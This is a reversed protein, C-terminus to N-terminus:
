PFPIMVLSDVKFNQSIMEYSRISDNIEGEQSQLATKSAWAWAESMLTFIQVAWKFIWKENSIRLTHFSLWARGVIGVLYTIGWTYEYSPVYIGILHPRWVPLNCLYLRYLYERNLMQQECSVSTRHRVFVTKETVTKRKCLKFIQSWSWSAFIDYFM